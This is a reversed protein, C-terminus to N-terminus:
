EIESVYSAAEELANMATRLLHMAQVKYNASQSHDKPEVTTKLLSYLHEVELQEDEIQEAIRKAKAARKM